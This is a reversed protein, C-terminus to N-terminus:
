RYIHVTAIFSFFFAIVGSSSLPKRHKPLALIAIYSNLEVAALARVENSWKNQNKLKCMLNWEILNQCFGVQHMPLCCLSHQGVKHKFYPSKPNVWLCCFWDSLVIVYLSPNVGIWTSVTVTIGDNNRIMLFIEGIILKLTRVERERETEGEGM